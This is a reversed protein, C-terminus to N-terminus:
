IPLIDKFQGNNFHDDLFSENVRATKYRVYRINDKILTDGIITNATSGNDPNQDFLNFSTHAWTHNGNLGNDWEETFKIEELTLSKGIVAEEENGLTGKFVLTFKVSDYNKTPILDPYIM